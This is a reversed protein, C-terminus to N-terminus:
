IISSAEHEAIHNKICKTNWFIPEILRKMRQQLEYRIRKPGRFPLLLRALAPHRHVLDVYPAHGVSGWPLFPGQWPRPDSMFHRVRPQVLHQFDFNSFFAPYNWRFSAHDIVSGLAVNFADQQGFLMRSGERLALSRCEKSFDSLDSRRAQFLGTNVYNRAAEHPLGIDNLRNRQRKWIRSGTKVILAIPDPVALVRGSTIEFDLLPDLTGLIHTDGDVHTVFKYNPEILDDLFYRAYDMTLSSIASRSFEKFLINEIGCVETLIDIDCPSAGFLLIIVDTRLSLNARAQIASLLTPFAYNIDTTYCLCRDTEKCIISMNVIWKHMYISSLKGHFSIM